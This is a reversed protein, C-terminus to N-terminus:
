EENNERYEKVLKKVMTKVQYSFDKQLIWNFYNKDKSLIPAAPKGAYKGFNFVVEGKHNYKLRRTADIMNYDRTFDHLAEVDNRVPEEIVKGDDTELNVGEYKEVQGMLVEATARVDAMAEHSKEMNKGCYFRYAAALNRPEMKYFIRQVDVLRRGEMNLEHGARYLEEMLMPLDYGSINYGALDAEGIFEMVEAAHESFPPKEAVDEESIGHVQIAEKSIPKGPNVLIDLVEPESKGPSYKMMGLQIIRDRIVHLGTAEIDLFCLDKTLNLKM